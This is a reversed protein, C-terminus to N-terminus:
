ITSLNPFFDLRKGEKKKKEFQKVETNPGYGLQSPGNHLNNLSYSYKKCLKNALRDLTVFVYIVYCNYVVDRQWSISILLINYVVTVGFVVEITDM